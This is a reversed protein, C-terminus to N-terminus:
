AQLLKKHANNDVGKIEDDTLNAFLIARVFSTIYRHLFKTVRYFDTNIDKTM